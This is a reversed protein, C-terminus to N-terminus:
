KIGCRDWNYSFWCLLVSIIDTFLDKQYKQWHLKRDQLPPLMIETTFWRLQIFLFRLQPEGQLSLAFLMSLREKFTFLKLTGKHSLREWQTNNQLKSQLIERGEEGCALTDGAEGVPLHWVTDLEIWVLVFLIKKHGPHWILLNNLYLRRKSRQSRNLNLKRWRKMYNGLQGLLYVCCNQTYTRHGCTCSISKQGM